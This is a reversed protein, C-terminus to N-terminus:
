WRRREDAPWSAPVAGAASSVVRDIDRVDDIREFAPAPPTATATTLAARYATDTSDGDPENCFGDPCSVPHRRRATPVTHRAAVADRFRRAQDDFEPSDPALHFLARLFNDAQTNEDLRRSLYAICAYIPLACTQVGTM